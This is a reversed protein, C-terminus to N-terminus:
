FGCAYWGGTGSNHADSTTRFRTAEKAVIQRGYGEIVFGVGVLAYSTDSFPKPFTFTKNQSEYGELKTSSSTLWQEIFGNSWIRWAIAGNSNQEIIKIGGGNKRLDDLVKKVIENATAM